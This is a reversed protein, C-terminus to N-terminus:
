QSGGCGDIFAHFLIGSAPLPNPLQVEFNNQLLIETGSDYIITNSSNLIQDSSITGASENDAINMANSNNGQNTGTLNLTPPCLLGSLGIQVASTVGNGVGFSLSTGTSSTAANPGLWTNLHENDGRRYLNYNNSAQFVGNLNSITVDSLEAFVSNTGYNNLIWYQGAPIHNPYSTSDPNVNLKTVVMEGDPYPGSAPFTLSVDTGTFNVIGAANVNQRNSAGNGVPATSRIRSSNGMITGHATGARDLVAGSSENFQYHAVLGNTGPNTLHRYERIEEQTLSKNWISVEDIDAFTAGFNDRGIRLDSDFPEVNHVANNVLVPVGNLYITGNNPSVVLAVHSWQNAPLTATSNLWYYQNDWEYNLVNNPNLRLGCVTNNGRVFILGANTTHSLNPKVWAMMTVTNSNLNLSPMQAYSTNDGPVRLSNGALADNDCASNVTILAIETKSNTNSGQTVALTVDYSGNAGLVVKPNRSTTSSIYAPAPTITWQWTAGSHNVMSFSELILTDRSCTVINTPAMPQIVPTYGEVFSMSWVGNNGAIRVEDNAYFPKIVRTRFSNPLGNGCNRWDPDSNNRYYVSQNTPLYVGGDTGGQVLIGEPSQGDLSDDSLNIWSTGANLTKYVKETGTGGNNIAIYLEDSNLPSLSIFIGGSTNSTPLPITAWNTGGDSTRYISSGDWGNNGNNRDRLVVYMVNPNARSVEIGLTRDNTDGSFTHISQFTVGGDTSKFLQNQSTNYLHNYYRPDPEIEGKGENAISENPYLGINPINTVANDLMVPVRRGGIDSHYVNMNDGPHVFGTPSEGGSLAKSKGPTYVPEYLIANGNHYRGGVMIDQNWGIDFGWYDSGNLGNNLSVKSSIDAAYLDVGGDTAIWVDSGNIEIEQIDPHSHGSIGPQYGGIGTYSAGGDDSRFLNLGGMLIQEPNTASAAIALNYYGQNYTGGWALTPHFSTLCLHTSDYPGGPDGAPLTWTSGSDTSKYVGVWNVDQTRSVDDGLLAVYIYHPNAPTVTMRAGSMTNNLNSASGPFWGTAQEVFSSGKNTSRLFRIEEDNVNSQLVYVTDNSGPKLELDWSPSNNVVTWSTGGDTSRILRGNTGHTGFGHCAALIIFGNGSKPVFLVDVPNISSESYVVSWTTGGDTSRYLNDGRGFYVTDSNTPHIKITTPGLIDLSAGVRTWNQGKDTSKFLAGTESGSFLINPNSLSQDITYINVQDSIWQTQTRDRTELPGKAVWTNSSKLRSRKKWVEEKQIRKLQRSKYPPILISGNPQVYDLHDLQKRWHKYNQTHTSKQFKHEKFYESYAADVEYVNPHDSYMLKAWEPVHDDIPPITKFFNYHEQGQLSIVLLIILLTASLTSKM